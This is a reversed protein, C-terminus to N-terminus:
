SLSDKTPVILLRDTSCRIAASALARRAFSEQETVIIMRQANRDQIIQKVLEDACCQAIAASNSADILVSSDSIDNPLHDTLLQIKERTGVLRPLTITYTSEIANM